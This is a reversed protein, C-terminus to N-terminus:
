ILKSMAMMYGFHLGEHTNNFVLADEFSTLEVGYSTQYTNYGTFIKQDFDEKTKSVLTLLQTTIFDLDEKTYARSPASGKRFEEILENTLLPEVGANKYCLLQHTVLVHGLNWMMNNKYGQPIRNLQELTFKSALKIMNNRTTELINFVKDM